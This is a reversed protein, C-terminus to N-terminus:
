AAVDAYIERRRIRYVLDVSIKYRRAAEPAKVGPQRIDRIAEPTLARPNGGKAESRRFIKLSNLHWQHERDEIAGPDPRVAEPHPHLGHSDYAVMRGHWDTALTVEVGCAPCRTKPIRDVTNAGRCMALAEPHMARIELLHPPVEQDSYKRRPGPKSM